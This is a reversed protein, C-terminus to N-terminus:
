MGDFLNKREILELADNLHSQLLAKAKQAEALTQTTPEEEINALLTKLRKATKNPTAPEEQDVDNRVPASSRKRKPPM